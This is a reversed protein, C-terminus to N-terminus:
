QAVTAKSLMVPLGALGNGFAGALMRKKGEPQVELLKLRGTGCQVHLAGDERSLEGVAATAVQRDPLSEAAFIKLRKGNLSTYAGPFPNFGRIIRAIEVSSMGWDIESEVDKIKKAYTIGEEPQVTAVMEGAAIKPLDQVLLKGSAAALKDHLTGTTDTDAIPVQRRSFVPGTDLGADMQMLCVGTEPDGALLARQIPAAGRWRPLLSAHVNISGQQPLALTAVPLIQGFAIVVGLDFPGHAAAAALFAPEDRRIQEPQLVPIHHRTALVKVASERLGGGRGAPRDPQTVVAAVCFQDSALLAALGHAAFEPTGFFLIRTPKEM